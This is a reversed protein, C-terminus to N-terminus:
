LCGEELQALTEEKIDDEDEFNDKTPCRYLQPRSVTASSEFGETVLRYATTSKEDPIITEGDDKIKLSPNDTYKIDMEIKPSKIVDNKRSVRDALGFLSIITSIQTVNLIMIAPPVYVWLGFVIVNNM